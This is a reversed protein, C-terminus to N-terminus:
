VWRVLEQVDKEYGTPGSFSVIALRCGNVHLIAERGHSHRNESEMAHSALDLTARRAKWLQCFDKCPDCHAERAERGAEDDHHM